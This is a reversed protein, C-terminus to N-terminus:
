EGAGDGETDSGTDPEEEAPPNTAENNNANPEAEVKGDTTTSEDKPANATGENTGLSETQTAGEPAPTNKSSKVWAYAGVLLAM